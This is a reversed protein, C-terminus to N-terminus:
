IGHETVFHRKESLPPSKISMSQFIGRLYTISSRCTDAETNTWLGESSGLIVLISNSQRSIQLYYLVLPLKWFIFPYIPTPQSFNSSVKKSPFDYLKHYELGSHGFSQDWAALKVSTVKSSSPHSQCYTEAIHNSVKISM